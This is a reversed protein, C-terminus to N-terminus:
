AVPADDRIEPLWSLAITAARSPRGHVPVTGRSSNGGARLRMRSEPSMWAVPEGAARQFEHLALRAYAEAFEQIDSALCMGEPVAPLPPLNFSKPM